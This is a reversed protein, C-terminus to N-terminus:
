TENGVEALASATLAADLGGTSYARRAPDGDTHETPQRRHLMLHQALATPPDTAGQVALLAAQFSVRRGGHFKMGGTIRGDRHLECAGEGGLATTLDAAAAEPREGLAALFEGRDM